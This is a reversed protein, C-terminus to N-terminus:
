FWPPLSSNIYDERFKIDEPYSVEWIRMPGIPRGNIFALPANNQDNYVEKFHPFQENLLYMRAWLSRTGEGSIWLIGGLNELQDGRISPILRVCGPLGEQGFDVKRDQYYVCNIPVEFQQGQNVVIAVPREVSIQGQESLNKLPLLFAIIGSNTFVKEQYVFDDDISIGGRYVLVEGERTERTQSRDLHFEGIWSYRDYSEDSGILSYAPYKGVDSPDILFHTVNHTYLFELAEEESQGTLVHRGFLHNWSVLSNGGDLVTAREGGTQVYYGYDWWHAFVADKPTNERIWKGAEQWQQGYSPGTFRAQSLSGRSFETFSAGSVPLFILLVITTIAFVSYVKKSNEKFVKVLKLLSFIGIAFFINWLLFSTTINMLYIDGKILNIVFRLVLACFAWVIIFLLSNYLFTREPNPRYSFIFILLFSALMTTLPAFVFFLRVAGGAAVIMIFFWVFIFFYKKDLARIQEFLDKNKYFSYFYVIVLMVLFIVLSGIYTNLSIASSGNWISSQSYRSFIFASIFAAYVSTFILRQKINKIPRLLIYFLLMSGFFFLLFYFRGFTGVWDVFLPTHNEAVTQLWRNIGLPHFLQDLAKSFIKSIFSIGFLVSAGIISVIFGIILSSVGEPLKNELKNKIKLYDKKFVIFDILLILFVFAIIGSDPSKLIGELGSYKGTLFSLFFITPLFWATYIYFDTKSVKNLFLELLMFLSIILLIFKVIGSGLGMMGTAIGSLFAILVAFKTSKMKWSKVFLFLALFMFFMAYPEKDAYGGLTRFLYAPLVSLFATAVLATKNDFLEKVLFYFVIMSLGFFLLPYYVVVVKDIDITGFINLFKHLYVNFYPIIVEVQAMNKGEPVYRMFDRAPFVGNELLQKSLRLFLLDDLTLPLFKNTTIDKLLHLNRTRIFLGFWIIATLVLYSIWSIKKQFIGIVKERKLELEDSM